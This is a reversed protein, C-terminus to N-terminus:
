SPSLPLSRTSDSNPQSRTAASTSGASRQFLAAMRKGSERVDFEEVVKARGREARRRAAEPDALVRAIAGALGTVDGPEALLGTEGGVILEPIGSLRSAVAPTGCALAEILVVPLGEMQGDAAVISPLVFVDAEYLRERVEPEPLGGSFRVRASIGLEIALRELSGRLAGDGVLELELPDLDSRTGVARLLVEHGKYEQLSAVCLAHPPDSGGVTRPRFEYRGPDVGCRVVEVPTESDDRREDELLRRNFESITVVFRADAMKRGLMSRDVYLDHAHATFSYPVGLLRWCIWATLAPYTAYHAHVHDVRAARLDRAHACAIATTALSRLGRGPSRVHAVAIAALSSTLRLPRRALWWLSAALARAPSPRRVRAAWPAAAPHVPQSSPAFLSRLEIEVGGADSVADLERVIFTESLHPFRSVIYAVRM